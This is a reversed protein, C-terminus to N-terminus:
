LSDKLSKRVKKRTLEVLGLKTIDIFTCRVSDKQIEKKLANILIQSANKCGVYGVIGCM